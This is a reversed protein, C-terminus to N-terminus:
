QISMKQSSMYKGIVGVTCLAFTRSANCRGTKLQFGRPSLKEFCSVQLQNPGTLQIEIEQEPVSWINTLYFQFSGLTSLVFAKTAVTAESPCGVNPQSDVSSNLPVLRLCQRALRYYGPHCDAFISCVLFFFNSKTRWHKLSLCDCHIYFTSDSSCFLSLYTFLFIKLCPIELCWRWLKVKVLIHVFLDTLHLIFCPIHLPPVKLFNFICTKDWTYM